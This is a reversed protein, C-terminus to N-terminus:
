ALTDFELGVCLVEALGTFMCDLKKRGTANIVVKIQHVSCTEKWLYSVLERGDSM